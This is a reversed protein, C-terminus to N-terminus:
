SDSARGSRDDDQSSSSSFLQSLSSFPTSPPATWMTVIVDAAAGEAVM